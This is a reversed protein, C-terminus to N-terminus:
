SLTAQYAARGAPADQRPSRRLPPGQGDLRRRLPRRQDGRAHRRPRHQGRRDRGVAARHRRLGGQRVRGRRLARGRHGHTGVEPPDFFVVEGLADQAFWTIGFTAIDGDIRAWDHEAHYLLDDPYSADAMARCGVESYLPKSRRRRARVSAASTSRSSPARARRARGARLGHRHRGGPLAVADRQDGRRRRRGPQGPPRHGAGTLTFPSSSRPRARGRPRARSPTPASSARTRRARGASAPRSRAARGGDPRQRLPPLLGGPAAHRARGPRRAVAGRRLSRTGSRRGRRRPRAAARRRGRRHLRHRLRARAQGAAPPPPVHLADPLPADALAQVIERAQPGQVALMAYATPPTPSRSTSAARRPQPVLRPGERPQGRQHGDPLPRRGAPLHLPRRPRRRGRPVPRQVARRRDALKDVDNSLLASCSAGRRGPGSTEIEGMHSVDFIGCTARSPSTSPASARTSSPCRGAPSRSSSPGPPSTATTCRPASSRPTASAAAVAALSATVRGGPRGGPGTPSTGPVTAWRDAGAGSHREPRSSPRRPQASRPGRDVTTAAHRSAAAAELARDGRPTRRQAPPRRLRRPRAAHRTGASTRAAAARAAPRAVRSRSTRRREQAARRALPVSAPAPPRGARRGHVPSADRCPASSPPRGTSMRPMPSSRETPPRASTQRTGSGHRRRVRRGRRAAARASSQAARVARVSTRPGAEDLAVVRRVSPMTVSTSGPAM